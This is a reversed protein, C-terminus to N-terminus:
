KKLQSSLSLIAADYHTDLIKNIKRRRSFFGKSKNQLKKIVDETNEPYELLIKRNSKLAIFDLLISFGLILAFVAIFLAILLNISIVIIGAILLFDTISGIIFINKKLQSIIFNMHNEFPQNM